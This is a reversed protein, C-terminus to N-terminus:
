LLGEFEERAKSMALRLETITQKHKKSFSQYEQQHKSFVSIFAEVEEKLYVKVPIEQISKGYVARNDIATYKPPLLLGKQQWAKISAYTYDVLNSLEPITFTLRPEDSDSMIRIKCYNDIYPLKDSCDRLENPSILKRYRNLNYKKVKERYDPDTAYKKNRTKINRIDQLRKKSLGVSDRTRKM